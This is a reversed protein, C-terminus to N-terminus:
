TAAGRWCGSAKDFKIAKSGRMKNYVYQRVEPQDCLWKAVESKAIGFPASRDWHKLAPM